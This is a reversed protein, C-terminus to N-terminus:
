QPSCTKSNSLVKEPAPNDNCERNNRYIKVIVPKLTDSSGDASVIAGLPLTLRKSAQSIADATDMYTPKNPNKADIWVISGHVRAGETGIFEVQWSETAVSDAQAQGAGSILCYAALGVILSKSM